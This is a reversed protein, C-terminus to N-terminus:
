RRSWRKKQLLSLSQLQALQHYGSLCVVAVHASLSLQSDIVVGLVRRCLTCMSLTLIRLLKM